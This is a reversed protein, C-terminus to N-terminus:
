RHWPCLDNIAIGVVQNAGDPGLGPNDRLVYSATEQPSLGRDMLGCMDLAQDLAVTRGGADGYGAAAVDALFGRIACDPAPGPAVFCGPPPDANAGPVVALAAVAVFAASVIAGKRAGSASRIIGGSM